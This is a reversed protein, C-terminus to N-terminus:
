THGNIAGCASLNVIPFNQIVSGEITTTTAIFYLFTFIVLTIFNDECNIKGDIGKLRSLLAVLKLKM